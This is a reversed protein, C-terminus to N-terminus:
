TGCPRRLVCCADARGGAASASHSPQRVQDYPNNALLDSCLAICEDYQRRNFRQLALFVPDIASGSMVGITSASARIYAQEHATDSARAECRCWLDLEPPYTVTSIPALSSPSFTRVCHGITLM